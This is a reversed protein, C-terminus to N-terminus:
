CVPPSFDFMARAQKIGPLFRETRKAQNILVMELVAPQGGPTTNFAPQLVAASRSGILTLMHRERRLQIKQARTDPSVLLRRIRGEREGEEEEEEEERWRSEESM